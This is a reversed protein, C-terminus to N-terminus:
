KEEAFTVGFRVAWESTAHKGSDLVTAASVVAGDLRIRDLNARWFNAGRLDAGGLDAGRLSAERFDCGSLDAKRLDSEELDAGKFTSAALDAGALDAYSLNKHDFDAGHLTVRMASNQKRTKNWDFVNRKLQEYQKRDYL